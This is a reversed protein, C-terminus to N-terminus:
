VAHLLADHVNRSASFSRPEPPRNSRGSARAGACIRGPCGRAAAPISADEGQWSPQSMPGTSTTRWRRASVADRVGARGRADCTPGPWVLVGLAGSMYGSAGRGGFRQATGPDRREVARSLLFIHQSRPQGHRPPRRARRPAGAPSCRDALKWACWGTNTRSLRTAGHQGWLLNAM